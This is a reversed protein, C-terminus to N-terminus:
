LKQGKILAFRGGKDVARKNKGADVLISLGDDSLEDVVLGDLRPYPLQAGCLDPLFGRLFFTHSSRLGVFFIRGLRSGTQVLTPAYPALEALLFLLNQFFLALNLSLLLFLSIPLSLLRFDLALLLTISSSPLALLFLFLPFILPLLLSLLPPSRPFFALSLTLFLAIELAASACRPRSLPRTAVIVVVPM